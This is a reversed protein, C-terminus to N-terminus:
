AGGLRVLPARLEPIESPAPEDEPRVAHLGESTFVMQGTSNPGLTDQPPPNPAIPPPHDTPENTASPQTHTNRVATSGALNGSECVEALVESAEAFWPFV